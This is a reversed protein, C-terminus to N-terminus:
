RLDHHNEGLDRRLIDMQESTFLAFARVLTQRDADGLGTQADFGATRDVLGGDSSGCLRRTFKRWNFRRIRV